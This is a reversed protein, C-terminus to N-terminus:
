RVRSALVIGLTAFFCNPLWAALWGPIQGNQGLAFGVRQLVFFGFALALSGAVGHFINRRGTPVGFPIAILVVVLCTWPAARRAHLQTDLWAARAPPMQPHLRRYNLIESVSLDGGRLAKKQDFQNIRIESRLMEPSEELEPLALRALPEAPRLPDSDTPDRYLLDMVNEFIWVGAEWHGRDGYTVRTAGATLPVRARVGLLELAFPDYAAASWTMGATNTWAPVILNTRWLRNTLIMLNTRLGLANTLTVSFTHPVPWPQGPWRLVEEPRAPPAPFDFASARRQLRNTDTTSRGLIEVVDSARWVGNTWRLRAAILERQLDRPLWQRVQPSRLEMTVSNFAGINWSRTESKFHLREHWDRQARETANGRSHLIREQHEKADPAIQENLLYLGLSAGVGLALYPLMLRGLSCGAARMATLEHNKALQTLTYLLGLLLSVPLVTNLQDPIGVWIVAAIDGATLHRQQYEGIDGILNFSTWFIFFGGLCAGLPVLLQRLLYRDLLRM